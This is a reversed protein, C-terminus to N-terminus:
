GEGVGKVSVGARLPIRARDNRRWFELLLDAVHMPDDTRHLQLSFVCIFILFLRVQMQAIMLPKDLRDTGALLLLRAARAALFATSLGTFWGSWYGATSRLPTRWVYAHPPQAKVGNTNDTAADAARAPVVISPVSVRASQASRITKTKVHWEVAEEVSDFGDPRSNLLSHMHPLAELASGEVVDLVAVGSVRYVVSGGMSHGVLLLTPAVTPDPFVERLMDTFDDVLVDISLDPDEEGEKTSKTKGHRRADAALLGVEGRGQARVERALSAFSLGSYGAGHHCVLVTTEGRGGPPTYYVRCDLSRSPVLVQLADAFYDVASIPAFDPNPKKPARVRPKLFPIAPPGLGSYGGHGGLSGLADGAEDSEADLFEDDEDSDNASLDSPDPPLERPLKALRASM